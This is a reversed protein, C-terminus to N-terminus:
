VVVCGGDLLLVRTHVSQREREREKETHTDRDSERKQNNQENYATETASCQMQNLLNFAVVVRHV